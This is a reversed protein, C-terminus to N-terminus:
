CEHEAFFLRACYILKNCVKKLGKSSFAINTFAISLPHSHVQRHQSIQQRGSKVDESTTILPLLEHLGARFAQVDQKIEFFYFREAKKPFGFSPLFIHDAFLFVMKSALQPILRSLLTQTNAYLIDGQINKLDVPSSSM